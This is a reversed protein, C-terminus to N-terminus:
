TIYTSNYGRQTSSDFRRFSMVFRCFSMVFRRFSMVFRRIGCRFSSVVFSVLRRILSANRRISRPTDTHRFSSVGYRCTSVVIGCSSVDYRFSSVGYRFSSVVFRWLLVVLRVNQGLDVKMSWLLPQACPRDCLRTFFLLNCFGSIRQFYTVRTAALRGAPSQIIVEYSPLIAAHPTHTLAPVRRLVTFLSLSCRPILVQLCASNAPLSLTAQFLLILLRM